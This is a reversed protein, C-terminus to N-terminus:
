IAKLYFLFFFPFSGNSHDLSSGFPRLRLSYKACLNTFFILLDLCRLDKQCSSVVWFGVHATSTEEQGFLWIVLRFLFPVINQLCIFAQIRGKTEQRWPGNTEMCLDLPITEWVITNVRFIGFWPLTLLQSIQAPGFYQWFRIFLMTLRLIYNYHFWLDCLYYPVIPNCFSFCVHVSLLIRFLESFLLSYGVM